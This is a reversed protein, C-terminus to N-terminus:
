GRPPLPYRSRDGLRRMMIQWQELKQLAMVSNFIRKNTKFSFLTREVVREVLSVRGSIKM